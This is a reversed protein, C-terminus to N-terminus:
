GKCKAHSLMSEWERQIRGTCGRLNDRIEFTWFRIVKWGAANLELTRWVDDSKRRGWADRHNEGDVEIDLRCEPHSEDRLALDLIRYGVPVQPLPHLGIRELAKALLKEYPSEYPYWVPKRQPRPHLKETDALLAIHPIGCDATWERDGVVYLIARARSVSVNFLNPNERLFKLAGDTLGNGSCLSFIIVDREGGQFGHATDSLLCANRQLDQPIGSIQLKDEIRRAQERFPTVIGITGNYHDSLLLKKVIEVVKQVEEPCWFSRQGEGRCLMGRVNQWLISGPTIGPTRLKTGDTGVQLRGGYFLQNSYEAIAGTNRFTCDLLFPTASPSGSALDYISNEAFTFRLDALSSLGLERRLLAERDATMRSVFRLQSPDGIIGARRARFLVPIASPISSQSAEDILALDFLGPLLPLFRKVSLSTVAWCPFCHFVTTLSKPLEQVLMTRVDDSFSSGRAASLAREVGKLQSRDADAPMKQRAAADTRLIEPFQKRAAGDLQAIEEELKGLDPMERLRKELNRIDGKLRLVRSAAEFIDAFAHIDGGLSCVPAKPCYARLFRGACWLRLLAHLNGRMLFTRWPPQNGCLRALGSATHLLAARGAEKVPLRSLYPRVTFDSDLEGRRNALVCGLVEEDEAILSKEGCTELIELFSQLKLTSEPEGSPMTLISRIAERIKPFSHLNFKSEPEGSPMTLISRIAERIKPFSHLNFKSEPGGSPMALISRIAERIKSFSHPTFKPEPRGSPMTLISRIAERIGFSLNPDDKSNCRAVPSIGDQDPLREMVSDIAKHNYSSLLVTQGRLRANIVAGSVVQSKGTGPPGQIVTLPSKLLSAVARRQTGTLSFDTAVSGPAPRLTADVQTDTFFFALATKDLQDDPVKAIAELEALLSKTYPSSLGASIVARNYIGSRGAPLIPTDLVLSPDLVERIQKECISSLIGALMAFDPTDGSEPQEEGDGSAYMGCAELFTKKASSQSFNRDLWELNVSPQTLRSQLEFGSRTIRHDLTYCFIPELMVEGDKTITASVPYGLTLVTTDPNLWLTRLTDSLGAFPLYKKWLTNNRPYWHGADSVFIFQKGINKQFVEAAMGEELRVCSIYYSLLKRFFSWRGDSEKAPFFERCIKEGPSSLLCPKERYSPLSATGHIRDNRISIEGRESLDVCCRFIKYAPTHLRASLDWAIRRPSVDGYTHAVADLVAQRIRRYSDSEREERSIKMVAVKINLIRM